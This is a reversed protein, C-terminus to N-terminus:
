ETDTDTDTDADPGVGADVYPGGTDTDVTDSDTGTDTDSDMGTDTDSDTGTDTDGSDVSGDIDEDIRSGASESVCGGAILATGAALSTAAAAVLGMFKRKKPNSPNIKAIMAELADGTAVSLMARESPRLSVGSKEIAADRDALLLKKFSDDRAAHFLIKELGVPVQVKERSDHRKHPQGGVITLDSKNTINDNEV